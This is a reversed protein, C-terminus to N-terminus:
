QADAQFIASAALGLGVPHANPAHQVLKKVLPDTDSFPFNDQKSIRPSLKVWCRGTDLCQLVFKFGEGDIGKSPDVGGMHELVFKGPTKLIHPKWGDMQAEDARHLYHMSWGRETTRAVMRQDIEKTLRWTIRYGVVGSKTLIDLEGDTISPWPVIVSRVRDPLRNQAHLAIEYNHEYMMSIVHLGRSLGLADQMKAWDEFTTDEFELHSFVHNPKLTFQKQPGIFHFHCDCAGPPLKLRPKPYNRDIKPSFPRQAPKDNVATSNVKCRSTPRRCSTPGNRPKPRLSNPSNRPRAAARTPASSASSTSSAREEGAGRPDGRQAERGGRAAHGEARVARQLHHGARGASGGRHHDAGRAGRARAATGAGGTRPAQGAEIHQRSDTLQMLGVDVHGAMLDNIAPANGRYHVETWTMGTRLKLLEGMFHNISAGSSTAVTLKGPNKKAYDILEAVTKVPLKPTVLLMNTAVALTSVPAFVKDWQYPPKPMTMPGLLISANSGVFLTHGDPASRAVYDGAITGGAGPRNEIIIPQGLADGIGAQLVRASIDVNGGAAYPVVLTIPKSPFQQAACPASLASLVITGLLWRRM